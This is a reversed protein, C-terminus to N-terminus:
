GLEATTLPCREGGFFAQLVEDFVPPAGPVAAFLTAMSRVKLADVPGLIAEAETGRHSLLAACLEVLRAKLLPHELYAAAEDLGSLGYEVARPSRGLAALQPFEWWIWHSVKRGETVERLAQAHTQAQPELFRAVGDAM